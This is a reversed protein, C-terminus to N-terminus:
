MCCLNRRVTNCATSLYDFLVHVCHLHPSLITAALLNHIIITEIRPLYFLSPNRMAPDAPEWGEVHIWWKAWVGIVCTCVYLQKDVGGRFMLQYPPLYRHSICPTNTQRKRSFGPTASIRWAQRFCHKRRGREVGANAAILWQGIRGILQEALLYRRPDRQQVTIKDPWHRVLHGQLPPFSGFPKDQDAM